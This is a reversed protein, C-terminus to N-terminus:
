PADSIRPPETDQCVTSVKSPSLIIVVEGPKVWGTQRWNRALQVAKESVHLRTLSVLDNYFVLRANDSIAVSDLLFHAVTPASPVDLSTGAVEITPCITVM